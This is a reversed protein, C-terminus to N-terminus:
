ERLFRLLWLYYVDFYTIWGNRRHWWTQEDFDRPRVPYISIEIPFGALRHRLDDRSLRSLPASAVGIIRIKRAHGLILAVAEPGTESNEIRSDITIIAERPVGQAELVKRWVEHPSPILGLAELRSPRTRLLAVRKAYGQHYLEAAAFPITHGAHYLTLILDAQDLPDRVTMFLALGTLIQGHFVGIGLAVAFAM